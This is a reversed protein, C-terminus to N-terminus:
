VLPRSGVLWREPCWAASAKGLRGDALGAMEDEEYRRRYRGSRCGWFRVLRRTGFTGQAGPPEIYRLVEADQPGTAVDDPENIRGRM